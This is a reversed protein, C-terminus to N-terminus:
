LSDAYLHFEMRVFGDVGLPKGWKCLKEIREHEGAGGHDHGEGGKVERYMILDQSDLAGDDIKAASAGDLYLLKLARTTAFTM